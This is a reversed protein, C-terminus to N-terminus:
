FHLIITDWLVDNLCYCISKWIKKRSCFYYCLLSSDVSFTIGIAILIFCIWYIWDWFLLIGLCLWALLVFGRFSFFLFHLFIHQCWSDCRLAEPPKYLRRCSFRGVWLLFIVFFTLILSFPLYLLSSLLKHFWLLHLNFIWVPRINHNM